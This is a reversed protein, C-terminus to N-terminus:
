GVSSVIVCLRLRSIRSVKEEFAHIFEAEFRWKEFVCMSVLVCHQQRNEGWEGEVTWRIPEEWLLVWTQGGGLVDVRCTLTVEYLLPSCFFFDLPFHYFFSGDMMEAAIPTYLYCSTNLTIVSGIRGDHYKM